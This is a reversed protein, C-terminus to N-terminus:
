QEFASQGYYADKGHKRTFHKEILYDPAGSYPGIGSSHVGIRAVEELVVANAVAEDVSHGWVFPGHYAVLVGPIDSESIGSSRFREVIVKGTNLEYAEAVEDKTMERTVPIPGRFHDAHTTGLVPISVGAQAYCVAFHSHTHVVSTIGTFARYLEAHTPTDSSPRLRGDLIAGSEIDIVVMSDKSMAEYAIGTPKIAFVGRVRDAVSVNGWTLLVLETRSLGLNSECAMQRIEEYMLM